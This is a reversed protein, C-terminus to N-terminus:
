KSEGEHPTPDLVEEFYYIGMGVRAPAAAPAPDPNAIDHEALWRDLQELLAQAQTASLTRFDPLAAAPLRHYMVKRQFRPAAGPHHLNHDITTILDAVDAGLIGIKEAAGQHPVYARSQLELRGDLRQYVSEVRLLEDLVARTPMDGSHRKVLTDFSLAGQVPLARPSGDPEHFDADRVWATLVRAARNHRADLEADSALPELLLRQVEKRTLGSLISTRSVSSKKGDLGFDHLAVEVYARKALEEFTKFSIGLRLLLRFLPRLLRAVARSVSQNLPYHVEM